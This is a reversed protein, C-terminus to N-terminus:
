VRQLQLEDRHRAATRRRARRVSSPIENFAPEVTPPIAATAAAVDESSRSPLPQPAVTERRIAAEKSQPAAADIQMAVRRLDDAMDSATTYRSSFRKAMAKLCVAELERSLSPALQRPPQPEDDCVQRLLESLNTARFPMIGTLMRYLIVGLSYIDTRGDIRHGAGRAQEPSMYSPTGSIIGRQKTASPVDSVALGFDVIVPHLGDRFIVNGPKLDRHVTRQAHAHALADAIAAVIRVTEQWTPRQDRLWENLSQGNLFESVIYCRGQDVGVDHVTVIGPHKLQALQRAEQMFENEVDQSAKGLLPIKIAVERNLQPDFGLYVAGFGGQGLIRRVQYRGVSKPVDRGPGGTSFTVVPGALEKSNADGTEQARQERGFVQTEHLDSSQSDSDPAVPGVNANEPPKLEVSPKPEVLNESRNEDSESM